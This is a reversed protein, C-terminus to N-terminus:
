YSWFFIREKIIRHDIRRTQIRQQKELTSCDVVNMMPAKEKRSPYDFSYSLYINNSSSDCDCRAVYSTSFYLPQVENWRTVSDLEEM